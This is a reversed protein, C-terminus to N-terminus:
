SGGVTITDGYILAEDQLVIDFAYDESSVSGSEPATIEINKIYGRQFPVSESFLITSIPTSDITDRFTVNLTYFQDYEDFADDYSSIGDFSFLTLIDDVDENFILNNYNLSGVRIEISGSTLGSISTECAFVQRYLDVSVQDSTLDDTEIEGNGFFHETKIPTSLNYPTFFSVSDEDEYYAVRFSRMGPVLTGDFQFANNITWDGSGRDIETDEVRIGFTSGQRIAQVEWGYTRGSILPITLDEPIHDFVGSAYATSGIGGTVDWINIGYYTIPEEVSLIDTARGNIPRDTLTVLDGRIDLKVQAIEGEGSLGTDDLDPENCAAITGAIFVITIWKKKM